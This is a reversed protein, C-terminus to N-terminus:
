PGFEATITFLDSRTAELRTVPAAFAPDRFRRDAALGAILRPAAGSSGTLTVKRQRLVLDTLHTDDPLVETAAALVDLPRGARDREDEVLTTDGILRSVEARLTDAESATVRGAAIQRDLANLAMEQKLFPTAVVALALMACAVAAGRVLWWSLDAGGPLRDDFPIVRVGDEGLDVEAAAPDLGVQRVVGLVPELSARPILFLRVAIKGTQRDRAEVDYDCHVEDASFPTERDMEFALVEALDHRAAIPLLLSKQLVDSADVRIRTPLRNSLSDIAARCRRLSAADLGFWGLSTQRGHHRLAVEFRDLPADLSGPVTILLADAPAAAGRRLSQPLFGSVQELWWTFFDRLM